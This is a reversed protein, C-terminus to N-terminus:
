RTSPLHPIGDSVSANLQHLQRHLKNLQVQSAVRRGELRALEQRVEQQKLAVEQDQANGRQVDIRAREIQAESDAVLRALRENQAELHACQMEADALRMAQEAFHRFAPEATDIDGAKLVRWVAGEHYLVAYYLLERPHFLLSTSYGFSQFTRFTTLAAQQVLWEVEAIHAAQLTQPSPHTSSAAPRLPTVRTVSQSKEIDEEPAANEAAARPANFRITNGTKQRALFAPTTDLLTGRRSLLSKM